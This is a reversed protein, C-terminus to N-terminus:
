ARSRNLKSARRDMAGTSCRAVRHCPGIPGDNGQPGQIKGVNTFATGNWVWLNGQVLYGDGISATAPLQNPDAVEGLITVSTGDAGADGMPGQLGQFGQIGQPGAPGAVGQPGPDGKAPTILPVYAEAVPNWYKLVPM